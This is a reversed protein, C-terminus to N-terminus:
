APREKLARRNKEFFSSIQGKTGHVKAGVELLNWCAVTTGLKVAGLHSWGEMLAHVLAGTFSDGAGTTDIAKVKLTPIHWTRGEQYLYVGHVDRTVINIRGPLRDMKEVPDHCDLLFGAEEFNMVSVDFADKKLALERKRKRLMTISPAFVTMKRHKKAWTMAKRFLRHNKESALSTCVVADSGKVWTEKLHEPGLFDTAGKFVLNTKEGGSSLLNIGVSTKSDQFVHVHRTPVHHRSLDSLVIKGFTDNGVSSVLDVKSGLLVCAASSNAASGGSTLEVDDLLTKSAFSLQLCKETHRHHTIGVPKLAKCTANVDVTSSGIFLAKMEM